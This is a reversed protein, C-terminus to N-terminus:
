EAIRYKNFGFILIVYVHMGYEFKGMCAMVDQWIIEECVSCSSPKQLRRQVFRHGLLEDM